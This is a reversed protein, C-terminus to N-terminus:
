QGSVVWAYEDVTGTFSEDFRMTRVAKAICTGLEDNGTTNKTVSAGAVKGKNITWTVGVRGSTSPDQKLANQVCTEIRGKNGRVVKQVEGADGEAVDIDGAADSDIRAKKVKITAADGTGAQGATQATIGVAADGTGGGAGAKLGVSDATAMEAGNVGNLAADLQGSMAAQDGIIDNALQDSGVGSTGLMQLLVSKKVVNEATAEQKAAPAADETKDAPKKVEDPKAEDTKGIETAEPPLIIKEVDVVLDLADELHDIANDEVPDALLIAIYFLVAIGNFVGLLGLFLPDDDNFVRPKFDSPTVARVPEPPANVFQFLLTTNGLAIKGRVSENLQLAWFQGRKQMEGRTRLDSLDRIGDKWSIKGEVSEPVVLAYGGASPVFLQHAPGLGLNQFAFTARQGDGVTVAEGARILREQAIKGEQVVGIRLVKPLQKQAAQPQAAASM